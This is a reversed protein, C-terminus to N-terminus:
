SPAPLWPDAAIFSSCTRVTGMPLKYTGANLVRLAEGSRQFIVKACFYGESSIEDPDAGKDGPRRHSLMYKYDAETIDLNSWIPTTQINWSRGKGHTQYARSILLLGQFTRTKAPPFDNQNEALTAIETVSLVAALVAFIPSVILSMVLRGTIRGESQSFILAASAVALVCGIVLSINLPASHDPTLETTHDFWELIWGLAATGFLIGLWWWGLKTLTVKSSASGEPM